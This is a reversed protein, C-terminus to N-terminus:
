RRLRSLRQRHEALSEGQLADRLERLGVAPLGLRNIDDASAERYTRALRNYAFLEEVQAVSMRGRVQVWRQYAARLRMPRKKCPGTSM